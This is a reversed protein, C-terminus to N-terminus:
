PQLTRHREMAYLASLECLADTAASRTEPSLLSELKRLCDVVRQAQGAVEDDTVVQDEMVKRFSPLQLVYEDILLTKTEPDFWPRSM